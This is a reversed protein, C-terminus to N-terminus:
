SIDEFMQYGEALLIDRVRERDVSDGDGWEYEGEHCLELYDLIAISMELVGVNVIPYLASKEGYFSLCYERFDQYKEDNVIKTYDLIMDTM